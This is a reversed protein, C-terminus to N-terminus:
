KHLKAETIKNTRAPSGFRNVQNRSKRFDAEKFFTPCPWKKLGYIVPNLSLSREFPCKESM